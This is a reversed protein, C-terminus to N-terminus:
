GQIDSRNFSFTPSFILEHIKEAGTNQNKEILYNKKPWTLVEYESNKKLTLTPSGIWYNKINTQVNDM